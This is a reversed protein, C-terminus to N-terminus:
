ILTLLPFRSCCAPSRRTGPAPLAAEARKAAAKARSAESAAAARAISAAKIEARSSSAPSSASAAATAAAANQARREREYQARDAADSAISNRTQTKQKQKPMTSARSYSATFFTQRCLAHPPLAAPASAPHMRPRLRALNSVAARPLRPQRRVLAPDVFFVFIFFTNDDKSARDTNQTTHESNTTLKQSPVRGWFNNPGTSACTDM